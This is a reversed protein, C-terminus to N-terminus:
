YNIIIINFIITVKHHALSRNPYFYSKIFVFTVIYLSKIYANEIEDVMFDEVFCSKNLKYRNDAAMHTIKDMSCKVVSERRKANVDDDHRITNKSIPKNFSCLNYLIKLM